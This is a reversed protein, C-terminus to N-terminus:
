LDRRAEELSFQRLAPPLAGSKTVLYAESAQYSAGDFAAEIGLAALYRQLM